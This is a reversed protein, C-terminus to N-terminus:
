GIRLFEKGMSPAAIIGPGEIDESDVASWDDIMDSPDDEPGIVACVVVEV